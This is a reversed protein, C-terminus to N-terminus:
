PRCREPDHRMTKFWVALAHNRTRFGPSDHDSVGLRYRGSDDQVIIDALPPAEVTPVDEPPATM